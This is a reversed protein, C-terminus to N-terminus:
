VYIDRIALCDDCFGQDKHDCMICAPHNDPKKKDKNAAETALIEKSRNAESVAKAQLDTQLNAVRFFNEGFITM